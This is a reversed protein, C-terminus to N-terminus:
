FDPASNKAMGNGFVNEVLTKPKTTTEKSKIKWKKKLPTDVLTMVDSVIVCSSSFGEAINFLEWAMGHLMLETITGYAQPYIPM